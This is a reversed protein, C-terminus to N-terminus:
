WLNREQWVECAPGPNFDSTGYQNGRMYVHHLFSEEQPEEMLDPAPGQEIIGNVTMVSDNRLHTEELLSPTCGQEVDADVTMVINNCPQPGTSKYREYLGWAFTMFSLPAAAWAHFAVGQMTVSDEAVSEMKAMLAGSGVSLVGGAAITVTVYRVRRSSDLLRYAKAMYVAICWLWVLGIAIEEDWSACKLQVVVWFCAAVVLPLNLNLASPGTWDMPRMAVVLVHIVGV